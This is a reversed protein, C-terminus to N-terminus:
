PGTQSIIHFPFIVHRVDMVHQEELAFHQVLSCNTLYTYLGSFAYMELTADHLRAKKLEDHEFPDPKFYRLNGRRHSLLNGDEPIQLRTARSLVSTESSRIVMM